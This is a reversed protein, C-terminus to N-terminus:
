SVGVQSKNAPRKKIMKAPSGVVVTNEEIDHTVVSAAGIVSGTHVTVGALIVSKAGIWVNDCITIQKKILGQDKIPVSLDDFRHNFSIMSVDHAISVDNGIEIGGAADLYCLPHISVNDGLSLNHIKFLYVNPHVSVNQGVHRALTKLLAYRIAMGTVGKTERHHEYLKQRIRKPFLKYFSTLLKLLGQYKSFKERGRM